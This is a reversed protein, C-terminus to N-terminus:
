KHKLAMSLISIDSARVGDIRSAQGLTEPQVRQLKQRSEASLSSIQRYDLERPIKVSGSKKLHEVRKNEINVYGAYKIDTEATFLARHDFSSFEEFQAICDQASITGRLLLDRLRV